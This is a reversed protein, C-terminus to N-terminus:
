RLHLCSIPKITWMASSTSLSRTRTRSSNHFNLLWTSIWEFQLHQHSRNSTSCVQFPSSTHTPTTTATKITRGTM